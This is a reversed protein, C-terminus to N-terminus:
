KKFELHEKSCNQYVIHESNTRYLVGSILAFLEEYNLDIEGNACLLHDPDM